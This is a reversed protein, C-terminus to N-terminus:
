KRGGGGNGSPTGKDKDDGTGNETKNMKQEFREQIKAKQHDVWESFKSLRAQEKNLLELRKQEREQLKEALDPKAKEAVSKQYVKREMKEERIKAAAVKKDEDKLEKFKKVMESRVQGVNLEGSQVKAVLQPDTIGLKGLLFGLRKANYEERADQVRAELQKLLESDEDKLQSKIDEVTLDDHGRIFTHVEDKFRKLLTKAEKKIQLFYDPSVDAQGDLVGNVDEVLLKLEDLIRELESLNYDPDTNHIAQIIAEGKLIKRVLEKELQLWRLQSGYSDGMISVDEEDDVTIDAASDASSVADDGADGTANDQASAKPIFSFVFLVM